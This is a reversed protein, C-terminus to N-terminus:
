KLLNNSKPQRSTLSYIRKQSSLHAIPYLRLRSELHRRLLIFSTSIIVTSIKGQIFWASTAFGYSNASFLFFFVNNNYKPLENWFCFLHINRLIIISNRYSLYTYTNYYIHVYTYSEYVCDIQCIKCSCISLRVIYTTEKHM